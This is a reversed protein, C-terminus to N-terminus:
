ILVITGTRSVHFEGAGEKTSGSLGRKLRSTGSGRNLSPEDAEDENHELTTSSAASSPTPATDAVRTRNRLQYPM